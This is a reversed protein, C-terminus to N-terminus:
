KDKSFSRFAKSVCSQCVRYKMIWLLKMEVCEANQKGCNSCVDKVVKM